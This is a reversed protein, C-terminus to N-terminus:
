EAAPAAEGGESAGDAAAAVPLDKPKVYAPAPAAEGFRNLKVKKILTAVRDSPQAGVSIWYNIRDLDLKVRQSKDKVMPDYTGVEEISRGERAKQRDIVCVRFFPRHKRGCMTMRIRVSVCSEEIVLSLTLVGARRLAFVCDERAGSRVLILCHVAEAVFLSRL